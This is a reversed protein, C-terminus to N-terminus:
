NLRWIEFNLVSAFTVWAAYPIMALGAPRDVRWFSVATALVAIWLVAVEVLAIATQRLGFFILSWALNLILQVAYLILATDRRRGASDARWVRWAAIAMVVYLTTWVPAFVADPPNFAPKALSRYWTTVSSATAFGGIAGVALAIFISAAASILGNKARPRITWTTM